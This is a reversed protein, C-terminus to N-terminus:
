WDLRAPVRDVHIAVEFERKARAKQEENIYSILGGLNSWTPHYGTRDIVDYVESLWLEDPVRDGTFPRIDVVKFDEYLLCYFQFIMHEFTGWKLHYFANEVSGFHMIFQAFWGITAKRPYYPADFFWSYLNGDDMIDLIKKEDELPFFNATEKVINAALGSHGALVEKKMFNHQLRDFMKSPHDMFLVDSDICTIEEVGLCLARYIAVMKKFNVIGNNKNERICQVISPLSFQECIGLASIAEIPIPFKYGSIELYNEFMECEVDSTLVITLLVDDLEKKDVNCFANVLYAFRPPHVPIILHRKYKKPISYDVGHKKFDQRGFNPDIDSLNPKKGFVRVRLDQILKSLEANLKEISM